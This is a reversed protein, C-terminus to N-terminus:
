EFASDAVGQFHGRIRRYIANMVDAVFDGIMWLTASVPWYSIWGIIRAKYTDVPVTLRDNVWRLGKGSLNYPLDGSSKKAYETSSRYSKYDESDTIKRLTLSWKLRAWVTGALLYLAAGLIIHVPHDHIYAWAGAADFNGTVSLIGLLLILDITAQV